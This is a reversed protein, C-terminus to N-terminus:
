RRRRRRCTRRPRLRPSHGTASWSLGALTEDEARVRWYLATGAPLKTTSTYATSDTVVDTVPSGFNRDADVQIRYQRAGEAASWRFSPVGSVGAKPSLLTPPISRKSFTQPHDDQPATAVGSGDASASPMVVWYYATTEDTYTKPGSATRPAYAPANTFAVDVVQTFQPDKAVVVFYGCAGDVRDWTFLPVRPTPTQPEGAHYASAPM